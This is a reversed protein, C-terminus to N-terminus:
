EAFPANVKKITSIPYPAYDDDAQMIRRVTGVQLRDHRGVPALFRGGLAAPIDCLYWYLRGAINPDDVFELAVFTKAM